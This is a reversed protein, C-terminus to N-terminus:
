DMSGIIKNPDGSGGAEQGSAIPVDTWGFVPDNVKGPQSPAPKKEPTSPICEGDAAPAEPTTNDKPTTKGPPTVPPEPKDAPPTMNIMVNEESESVVQYNDKPEVELDPATQQEDASQQSNSDAPLSSVPADWESNTNVSTDAEPTFVPAPTSKWYLVGVLIAACLLCLGGITLSKSSLIKKKM